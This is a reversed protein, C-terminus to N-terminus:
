NCSSMQIDILVNELDNNIKNIETIKRGDYEFGWWKITLQESSEDVQFPELDLSPVQQTSSNTDSSNQSSASPPTKNLNSQFNKSIFQNSPSKTFSNVYPNTYLQYNSFSKIKNTIDQQNLPSVNTMIAEKIESSKDSLIGKLRNIDVSNEIKKRFTSFLSTVTATNPTTYTQKKNSNVPTNLLNNDNQTNLTSIPVCNETLNNSNESSEITGNYSLNSKNTGKPPIFVHEDDYSDDEDDDTEDDNDDEYYEDSEESEEECADSNEYEVDSDLQNVQPKQFIFDSKIVEKQEEIAFPKYDFLRKNIEKTKLQNEIIENTIISEKSVAPKAIFAGLPDIIAEKQQDTAFKIELNLKLDLSKFLNSREISNNKLLVLKQSLKVSITLIGAEKSILDNSFNFHSFRKEDSCLLRILQFSTQFDKNAKKIEENLKTKDPTESFSYKLQRKPMSKDNYINSHRQSNAECKNQEKKLTDEIINITIAPTNVM